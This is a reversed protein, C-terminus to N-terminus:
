RPLKGRKEQNVAVLRSPQPAVLSALVAAVVPAAHDGGSADSHSVYAALALRRTQGPLSGPELWGTFWVTAEHESVPATGTKGYLGRRLAGLAPDRFAGAATGVDVVGKMGARIRDLRAGTEPMAAVASDRGDLALLLRPAAIRGQGIAASALAMQLPTVQMRLGIAMQRLEHRSRIPDFRAPTAQLADYPSWRFGAPLLGGDLRLPQEFGLRRAAAVIPRVGDLAGPQLAQVDPLGGDARGFLSADSLEGSWAFWTNLSYTLAQALGLRGDQARRDLSQERYNTIRAGGQMPYAPADTQFAFGRRQALANISALPMGGLLADLQPDRRAAMELGLASIVKFTSGPSQHAGGDHQLAPLRLPSRAPNARDFDRVEAWNAATVAAGGAGAAALVDGNEADLVVFGARRGAPAPQAGRCAAGDWRGRHMGVCDLVKQSLAQLPLDLALTASAAGAGSPLRALMGAIGAGHEPGVGLLTALGADAAAATPAGSAWLLTGHRDRLTPSVALAPAPASMSSPSSSASWSAPATAAPMGSAALTRWALRGDAAHLHRYAQDGGGAGPMASIDLARAHLVIARAGPLPELTLARVDDARACGRGTCAPQSLVRAGAVDLLRGALLLEVPASGIGHLDLALRVTAGAPQQPWQAVRSWPQWGQPVDAFLRAAAGPMQATAALPMTEGDVAGVASAQWGPQGPAAPRGRWALLRREANYIDVQRRVYAGDAQRYLRKLLATTAGDLQVDRWPALAAARGQPPSAMWLALDRPAVDIQGGADLKVLGHAQLARFLAEDELPARAQQPVQYRGPPLWGALAAGHAPFAVVLARADAGGDSPADPAAPAYLRLLLEGAQPCAASARREIRLAGGPWSLWGHRRLGAEGQLGEVIQGLSADSLWRAAGHASRWSLTLAESAPDAFDARAMGSVRVEPMAAGLATAGDVLLVNRLGAGTQTEGNQQRARVTRAVDDFRVGLRLPMLRPEATAARDRLQECLDVRVPAQATMGAVTLVAGGTTAGMQVGAARPVDFAAGPLVAQYFSAGHLAGAADAGAIATLHRAHGAIALAGGCAALVGLVALWPRAAAPQPKHEPRASGAGARLNVARRWARRRAGIAQMWLTIFRPM